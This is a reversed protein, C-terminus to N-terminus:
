RLRETVDTYKYFHDENEYIYNRDPLLDLDAGFYKNFIFRFTNIPTVSSYLDSTSVGPLYLANLIFFREKLTGDSADKFNFKGKPMPYKMAYPGEDAQFIIVPPNKSSALITEVLKMVKQNACSLQALYSPISLKNTSTRDGCDERFVFPEHPILIHAFVFKPSDLLPIKELNEFQYLIRNRHQIDFEFSSTRSSLRRIIPAFLTTELLETSFGDIGLYLDGMLFNQDALPSVKTPEFWSGLHLYRYGQSKLLEGVKHNNLLPYAFTQDSTNEGAIGTLFNIYEMNLSSALSTLTRPYNATSQHAVYFGKETLFDLFSSNDFGYFDKLTREGGYRDLIIYYIDPKIAGEEVNLPIEQGLSSEIEQLVRPKINGIKYVASTLTPVVFLFIAVFNLFKTVSDFNRKTRWLLFFVLLGLIAWVSVLIDDIGLPLWGFFKYQGLAFLNEFRYAIVSHTHGHSFFVLIAFASLLGAKHWDKLLLKAAGFILAALILSAILPKVFVWPLIESANHFYLSFVPFAALFFPYVAWIKRIKTKSEKLQM